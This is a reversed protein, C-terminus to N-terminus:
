KIKNFQSKFKKDKLLKQTMFWSELLQKNGDSWKLGKDIYNKYDGKVYSNLISKIEENELTQIESFIWDNVDIKEDSDKVAINKVAIDKSSSIVGHLCLIFNVQTVDDTKRLINKKCYAYIDLPIVYTKSISMDLNLGQVMHDHLVGNFLDNNEVYSNKNSINAIAKRYIVSSLFFISRYAHFLYGPNVSLDQKNEKDKKIANSKVNEIIEVFYKSLNNSRLLQKLTKEYKNDLCTGRHVFLNRRERAELYDAYHRKYLGDNTEHEVLYNVVSMLPQLEDLSEICKKPELLLDALSRNGTKEFMEFAKTKFFLMYKKRTPVHENILLKTMSNLFSEYLAMLYIFNANCSLFMGLNQEEAEDVLLSMERIQDDSVTFSTESISEGYNEQIFEQKKQLKKTVKYYGRTAKINEKMISLTKKNFDKYLAALKEDIKM